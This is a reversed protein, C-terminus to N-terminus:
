HLKAKSESIRDSRYKSSQNSIVYFLLQFLFAVVNAALEPWAFISAGSWDGTRMAPIFWAWFNFGNAVKYSFMLHAAFTAGTVYRSSETWNDNIEWPVFKKESKTVYPQPEAHNNLEILGDDRNVHRESEKVHHSHLYDKTALAVWLSIKKIMTWVMFYAGVILLHGGFANRQAVSESIPGSIRPIIYCYLAPTLNCDSSVSSVGEMWAYFEHGILTGILQGLTHLVVKGLVSLRSIIGNRSMASQHNRSFFMENFGVNLLTFPGPYAGTWRAFAQHATFVGMAAISSRFLATDQFSPGTHDYYAKALTFQVMATGIIEVLFYFLFVYPPHFWQWLTDPGLM